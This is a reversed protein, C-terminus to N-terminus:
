SPPWVIADFLRRLKAGRAPNVNEVWTVRGDLHACFDAHGDRNQTAPGHHVCNNLTAKLRDYDVRAVNLHRNVVVGTVRQRASEHMTRVKKRNVDYGEDRVITEVTALFGPAHGDLAAGSFTLDDAYRSYSAAYVRALGALRVDLRWAALNALAPSTPAGQPLHPAGFIQRTRFNHRQEPALRCFVSQAVSSTTLGTLLRAVAWPYGLGRFTGHVRRVPTTLFFDKLDLAIVMREGAHRAAGTLCSRGRVFGHAAEHVPVRDLIERLIKRQIAMLRPKPSEVLRPPGSRKPVFAYRYNQMVPVDTRVAQRRSDAMWDLEDLDLDLWDALDGPTAIRPIDLGALAAVPAFRAEGLEINLRRAGESFPEAIGQFGQHERLFRVIWDPSPPHATPNAALMKGVLARLRRRRRRGVVKVGGQILAAATWEGALWRAALNRALFEDFRM